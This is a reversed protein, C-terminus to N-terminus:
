LNLSYFKCQKITKVAVERKNENEPYSLIGKYVCGFHGEGIVIDFAINSREILKHEAKLTSM